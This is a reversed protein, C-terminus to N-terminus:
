TETSTYDFIDGGVFREQFFQKNCDLNAQDDLRVGHVDLHGPPRAICMLPSRSSGHAHTRACSSVNKVIGGRIEKKKLEFDEKIM